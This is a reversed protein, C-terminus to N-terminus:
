FVADFTLSVPEPLPARRRRLRTKNGEEESDNSPLRPSAYLGLIRIRCNSGTWQVVVTPLGSGMAKPSSLTSWERPGSNWPLDDHGFGFVASWAKPACPYSSDSTANTESEDVVPHVIVSGLKRAIRNMVTLYLQLRDHYIDPVAVTQTSTTTSKTRGHRRRVQMCDVPHPENQLPPSATHKATQNNDMNSMFQISCHSSRTGHGKSLGNDSASEALLLVSALDVHDQLLQNPVGHDVLRYSQPTNNSITTMAQRSVLKRVLTLFQKKGRLLRRSAETGSKSTAANASRKCYQQCDLIASAHLSPLLSLASPTSSQTNNSDGKFQQQAIRSPLSLMTQGFGDAITQIRPRAILRGLDIPSPNLPQIPNGTATSQPLDRNRRPSGSSATSEKVPGAVRRRVKIRRPSEPRLPQKHSAAKVSASSPTDHSTNGLRPENARSNKKSDHTSEHRLSRSTFLPSSAAPLHLRRLRVAATRSSSLIM